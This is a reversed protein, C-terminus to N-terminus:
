TRRKVDKNAKKKYETYTIVAPSPERQQMQGQLLPQSVTAIAGSTTAGASSEVIIETIKM